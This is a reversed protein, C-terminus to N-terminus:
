SDGHGGSVVRDRWASRVAPHNSLVDDILDIM